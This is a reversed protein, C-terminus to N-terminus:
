AGNKIIAVINWLTFTGCSRPLFCALPQACKPVSRGQRITLFFLITVARGRKVPAPCSHKSDHVGSRYETLCGRFEAV